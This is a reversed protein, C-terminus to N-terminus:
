QSWHGMAFFKSIIDAPPVNLIKALESVSTFERIFLRIKPTKVPQKHKKIINRKRTKQLIKKINRSIEAEDVDIPFEEKQKSKKVSSVIARKHKSKEGLEEHNVRVKGFKKIELEKETELQNM